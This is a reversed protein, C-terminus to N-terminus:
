KRQKCFLWRTKKTCVVPDRVGGLRRRSCRGCHGGVTIIGEGFGAHSHDTNVGQPFASSQCRVEEQECFFRALLLEIEKALIQTRPSGFCGQDDEEDDAEEEQGGCHNEGETQM